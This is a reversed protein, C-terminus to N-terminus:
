DRQVGSKHVVVSLTPGLIIFICYSIPTTSIAGRLSESLRLVRCVVFSFFISRDVSRSLAHRVASVASCFFCLGLLGLVFSSWSTSSTCRSLSDERSLLGLTM